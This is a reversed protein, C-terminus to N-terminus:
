RCANREVPLSGPYFPPIWGEFTASNPLPLGLTHRFISLQTLLGQTKNMPIFGVISNQCWGLSEFNLPTFKLVWGIWSYIILEPIPLKKFFGQIKVIYRPVERDPQDGIM